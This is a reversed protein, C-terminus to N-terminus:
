PPAPFWAVVADFRPRWGREVLVTLPEQAQFGPLGCGPVRGRVGQGWVRGWIEPSMGVYTGNPPVLAHGLIRATRGGVRGAIM